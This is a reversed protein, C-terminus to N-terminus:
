RKEEQGEQLSAHEMIVGSWSINCLGPFLVAAGPLGEVGSEPLKETGSGLIKSGGSNRM